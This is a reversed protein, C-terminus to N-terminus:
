WAMFDGLGTRSDRDLRRFGFPDVYEGLLRFYSATWIWCLIWM